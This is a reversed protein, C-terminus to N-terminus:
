PNKELLKQSNTIDELSPWEFPHPVEYITSPEHGNALMAQSMNNHVQISDDPEGYNYSSDDPEESICANAATVRKGSGWRSLLDAIVNSTGSLIVFKYPLASFEWSWRTLRDMTSKTDNVRTSSPDFIYKLNNHDCYITFIRPRLIYCRLKRCAWIMVFDVKCNISWRSNAGKFTGSLFELPEHRQDMVDKEIDAVPIQTLAAEYHKDSADCFLCLHKDDDVHAVEVANLLLKKSDNFSKKHTAGWNFNALQLKSAQSKTRRM